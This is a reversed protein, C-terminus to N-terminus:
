HARAGFVWEDFRPTLSKGAVKEFAQQLDKATVVGNKHEQTYTKIAQWFTTEGLDRRLKDLFVVAKAYAMARKLKLSPYEGQWSLPVDFGQEKAKAWRTNALEIEHDYAARGWRQEKYAAVMFVTLGENLWLESWDACTLSNGWWQHALEHAIVWDEQPDKLIPEIEEKGIISHRAAEQAEDGDVLVQTYAREDFRIGSKDEFFRLMRRTDRFMMQVRARPVGQSVVILNPNGGPLRTRQFNGAAFGILYPSTPRAERWHWVAQGAHEAHSVLRGPGVAQMGAPLHLQFDITAKGSTRDQDCVIVDCTFYNAYVTDNGFVAGKPTSEFSLTISAIQGAALPQPLRFIRRDGVIMTEVASIQDNFNAPPIEAASASFSITELGEVLSKFRITESGYVKKNTFDPQASITYELVEFDTAKDLRANAEGATVAMALAM